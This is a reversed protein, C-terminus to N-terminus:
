NVLPYMYIYIYIYIGLNDAAEDPCQAKESVVRAPLSRWCRNFRSAAGALHKPIAGCIHLNAHSASMSTSLNYLMVQLNYNVYNGFMGFMGFMYSCILMHTLGVQANLMTQLGFCKTSESM